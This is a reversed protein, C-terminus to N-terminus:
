DFDDIELDDLGDDSGDTEGCAASGDEDGDEDSDSSVGEDDEGPEGDAGGVGGPEPEEELEEEDREQADAAAQAFRLRRAVQRRVSMSLANMLSRFDKVSLRAPQWKKDLRCVAVPCALPETSDGEQADQPLTLELVNLPTAVPADPPQMLAFLGEQKRVVGRFSAAIVWTHDIDVETIVHGAGANVDVRVWTRSPPPM